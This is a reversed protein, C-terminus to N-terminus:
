IKNLAEKLQKLQEITLTSLDIKSLDTKEEVPEVYPQEVKPPEDGQYYIFGDANSLQSTVTSLEEKTLPREPYNVGEKQIYKIQIMNDLYIGVDM